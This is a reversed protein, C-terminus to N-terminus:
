RPDAVWLPRRVRTRCELRDISLWEPPGAHEFATSSADHCVDCPDTM